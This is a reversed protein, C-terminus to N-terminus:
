SETEDEPCAPSRKSLLVMLLATVAVTMLTSLVLAVSLPVVDSGLLELHAMVRVGAPVFLLSLNHLLAGSVQGLPEPVAGKLLLFVFLLVMGVVPGALPAGITTVVLEGALQCVLILTLYELM